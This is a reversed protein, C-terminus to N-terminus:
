DTGELENDIADLEDALAATHKAIARLKLQLKNTDAEVAVSISQKPKNNSEAKRKERWAQGITILGQVNEKTSIYPRKLYDGCEPCDRFGDDTLGMRFRHNNKCEIITYNVNM